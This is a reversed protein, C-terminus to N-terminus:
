FGQESPPLDTLNVSLAHKFAVKAMAAINEAANRMGYKALHSQARVFTISVVAPDGRPECEQWSLLALM